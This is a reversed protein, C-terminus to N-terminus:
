FNQGLSKKCIKNDANILLNICKVLSTADAQNKGILDITVM